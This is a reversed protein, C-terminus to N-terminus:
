INDENSSPNDRRKKIVGFWVGLFIAVGVVVVVAIVIGAIAGASLGKGPEETPKSSFDTVKVYEKLKEDLNSTDVEYKSQDCTVFINFDDPLKANGLNGEIFIKSTETLSNTFSEIFSSFEFISEEINHMSINISKITADDNDVSLKYRGTESVVGVVDSYSLKLKKIKNFSVEDKGFNINISEQSEEFITLLQKTKVTNLFTNEAIDYLYTSDIALSDKTLRSKMLFLNEVNLPSGTIKFNVIGSIAALGLNSVHDRINGVLEVQSTGGAEKYEFKNKKIQPSFLNNLSEMLKGADGMDSGPSIFVIKNGKLKNLDIPQSTSEAVILFLLDIDAGLNSLGENINDRSICQFSNMKALAQCNQYEPEDSAVSSCEKVSSDMESKFEDCATTQSSPLSLMVDFSRYKNTTDGPPIESGGTCQSFHDDTVKMTPYGSGTDKLAEFKTIYEDNCKGEVTAYISITFQHSGEIKINGHIAVHKEQSTEDSRTYKVIINPSVDSLDFNYGYKFNTDGPPIESGGTCKSFHDNTVTM